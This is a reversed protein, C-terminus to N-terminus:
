ETSSHDSAVTAEADERAFFAKIRRWYIRLVAAVSVIGAVVMQFILSGSAPDLYAQADRSFLVGLLAMLGLVPRVM